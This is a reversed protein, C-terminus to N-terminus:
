LSHFLGREHVQFLQHGEGLLVAVDVEVRNTLILFEKLFKHNKLWKM